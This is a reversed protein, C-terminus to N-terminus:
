CCETASEYPAAGDIGEILRGAARADDGVNALGLVGAILLVISSARRAWRYWRTQRVAQVVGSAM